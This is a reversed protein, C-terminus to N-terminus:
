QNTTIRRIFYGLTSRPRTFNEIIQSELNNFVSKRAIFMTGKFYNKMVSVGELWM